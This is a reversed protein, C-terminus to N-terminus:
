ARPPPCLDRAPAWPCAYRKQFFPSWPGEGRVCLKLGITCSAQGWRGGFAAWRAPGGTRTLPLPVVCDQGCVGSVRNGSWEVMGRRGDPIDSGLQKCSGYRGGCPKPYSAHSGQAVWVKPRQGTTSGLALLKSWPVMTSEKHTAYVVGIPDGTGSGPLVVTVGEWDGEHDFCTADAIALGSVCTLQPLAPSDNFRYFIWYDLYRRGGHRVLHYYIRTPAARDTYAREAESRDQDLHLVAAHNTAYRALDRPRELPVCDPDCVQQEHDGDVRENLFARVDLPQRDGETFLLWPQYRLALTVESHPVVRLPGEPSGHRAIVADRETLSASHQSATPDDELQAPLLLLALGLLAGGLPLLVQGTHHARPILRLAAYLSGALVAVVTVAVVVMTVYAGRLTQPVAGRHGLKSRAWAALVTMGVLVLAAAPIAVGVALAYTLERPHHLGMVAGFAAVAGGTVFVLAAVPLLELEALSHPRNLGLDVGLALITLGSFATGIAVLLCPVLWQCVRRPHKVLRVLSVGHTRVGHASLLGAGLWILLAILIYSRTDVV